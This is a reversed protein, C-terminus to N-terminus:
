RKPLFTVMYWDPPLTTVQCARAFSDHDARVQLLAGQENGDEIAVLIGVSAEKQQIKSM